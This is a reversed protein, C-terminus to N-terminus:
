SPQFRIPVRMRCGVRQGGKLGPEFRWQRVADLAPKEFAPHTSKEVKPNSVKGSGDVVFILTVVGELKKGRMEAPYSPAAQFIARPKQDIETLSFATDLKEELSGPKGRGGIRGGSTFSLADAVDGGAGGSQGSLAQEIASLSLAELEPAAAAASVELSKIVEEADPVEEPAEEAEEKKQEPTEEKKEDKKKAAAADESVLEVEELRGKDKEDKMFFWGGFLIVGVHLVIALLIGVFRGM